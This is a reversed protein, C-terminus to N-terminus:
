GDRDGKTMETRLRRIARYLVVGVHSEGLGTLKAITRNTLGAGFKLAILDRERDKLRGLAALLEARTEDCMMIEDPALGAGPQDRLRDLSIWRRRARARLHDNVANRAITFLWAAFPAKEPRYGGLHVLAREFVHATLNDASEADTVRCRVYNYICPFYHDYVAAFAAPEVTARVVLAQENPLIAVSSAVM